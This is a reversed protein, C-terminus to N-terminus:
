EYSGELTTQSPTESTSTNGTFLNRQEHADKITNQDLVKSTSM